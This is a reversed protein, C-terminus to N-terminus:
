PSPTPIAPPGEAPRPLLAHVLGFTMLAVGVLEAFYPAAPFAAISLGGVVGIVGIGAAIPLLRWRKERFAARLSLAGMLLAAPITLLSSLIVIPLPIVGAIVGQVVVSGSM